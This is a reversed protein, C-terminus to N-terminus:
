PAPAKCFAASALQYTLGKGQWIEGFELDSRDAFVVLARKLAPAVLNRVEVGGIEGRREVLAVPGSCGKLPASFGWAGLAVYGLKPDGEFMIETSRATLLRHNLLAQDFRLLDAPQGYVAGAPGFTALVFDPEPKDASLRGSVTKPMPVGVEALRVSGMEAPRGIQDQLLSAFPKGTTRELVAGLVIYDCNNYRFEAGPAARPEGACFGLADAASGVGKTDRRYFPPMAEGDAGEASPDPLGSTHQLLMRLTVTAATKGKFAPLRQGLTEDLALRGAEVQQMVLTATLQKTVSAWRWVEDLNHPHGPASVARAYLTNDQDGVLVVGAMGSAAATDVARDMAPRDFSDVSGSMVLAAALAGAIAFM